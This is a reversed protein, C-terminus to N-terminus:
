MQRCTMLLSILDGNTHSADWTVRVAGGQWVDFSKYQWTLYPCEVNDCRWHGLTRSRGMLPTIHLFHLLCDPDALAAEYILLRVEASLKDFLICQKQALPSNRPLNPRPVPQVEETPTSPTATAVTPKKPLLKRIFRRM